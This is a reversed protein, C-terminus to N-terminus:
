ASPRVACLLAEVLRDDADEPHRKRLDQAFKRFATPSVGKGGRLQSLYAAGVIVQCELGFTEDSVSRTGARICEAFNLIEGYFSSPWPMWTPGSAAVSREAGHADTVVAWHKGEEDEHMRLFGTTGCVMTEPSDRHSWSGEVHATSWASTAPDEFRILIHGDDEVRVSDFKGDIIREPMRVTIGIPQAAKVMTPRKSLGSLFWSAAVAHIGCDLLAGGGGIGSQWFNPNGEPGGHATALYMAVPEGIWGADILKKATYYFPEWLWNENHQYLKGSRQVAELIRLCDYYSRAMPKECMVHLGADLAEIALPAHDKPQTCIDVADPKEDALLASLNSYTKVSAVDNRLRDAARADGAAEAQQAKEEYLQWMDLQTRGINDENPDVLACLQFQPIEPYARLHAGFIGGTGVGAIRIRKM